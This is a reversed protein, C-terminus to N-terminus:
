CRAAPLVAPVSLERGIMSRAYFYNCRASDSLADMEVRGSEDCPFTYARGQDFLSGFWLEFRSVMPSPGTHVTSNMRLGKTM